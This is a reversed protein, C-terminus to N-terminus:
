VFSYPPLPGHLKLDYGTGRREAEDQVGQTFANASKREVLFSVNLFHEKTPQGAVHRVAAPAVTNVIEQGASDHRLQIEHAILEGLAVKDDHSGPDQLTLDNLRRVEDSEKVIERLLDDEDRAVKLNYEVCGEVQQLGETYGETNDDLATVVAQDDPAVLGFRMPLASGDELLRELVSQHAILDRRKARLEIPADSVVAKLSRAKLTRLTGAPEGVGELGDLRLPHDGATIAYIYVTM